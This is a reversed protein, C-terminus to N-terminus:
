SLVKRTRWDMIAVLYRFGRRKPLSTIDSRWVHNPRDVRLRRLLSPHTKHGRAPRSTIPKWYIPMLGMLHMLRRTRKENVLHGDNRLHWIMQRAGVFPTEPVQADIRQMLGLNQQTEGKPTDYFSARATLPQPHDPEIMGRRVDRGLAEAKARFFLQGRGAGGIKSHREKGHEVDIEPKNRGGREFVGSAGELVALKWQHIM